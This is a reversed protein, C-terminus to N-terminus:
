RKGSRRRKKELPVARASSLAPTQGLEEFVWDRFAKVKPVAVLSPPTVLYAAFDVPTGAGFPRALRGAALDDAVFVSRTLAVGRGAIAADIVLAVQNFRLGRTPDVGDVGAAKLWMPWDPSSPDYALTEDHILAHHRLDAPTRLPHQGRLLAPACVPLVEARMLLETHLGPYRGSGYRLGVHVDERAFDVLRMSADVRLDIDPHTARFKELRPVLWKAALGPSTSVTLIGGGDQRQAISVAEAIRDFGERLGPLCAQGADTLRVERNLRRFLKVGLDDELAKIQHSIAAPTVHLEAAATSFSLHRAAAEFARLANLPPLRRVLM